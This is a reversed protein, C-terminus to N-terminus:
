LLEVPRLAELLPSPFFEIDGSVQQSWRWNIWSSQRSKVWHSEVCQYRSEKLLDGGVGFNGQSHPTQRQRRLSFM